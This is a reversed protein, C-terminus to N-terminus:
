FPVTSSSFDGSGRPSGTLGHVERKGKGKKYHKINIQKPLQSNCVQTKGGVGLWFLKKIISNQYM